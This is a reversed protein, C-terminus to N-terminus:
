ILVSSFNVESYFKTSFKSFKVDTKTSTRIKKARKDTHESFEKRTEDNRSIKKGYKTRNQHSINSNQNYNQQNNSTQAKQIM